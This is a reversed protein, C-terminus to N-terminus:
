IRQILLPSLGHEKSQLVDPFCVPICIKIGMQVNGPIRNKQNLQIGEHRSKTKIKMKSVCVKKTASTWTSGHIDTIMGSLVDGEEFSFVQLRGPMARNAIRCKITSTNRNFRLHTHKGPELHSVRILCLALFPCFFLRRM